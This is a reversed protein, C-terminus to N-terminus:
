NLEIRGNRLQGNCSSPNQPEPAPLHSKDAQGELSEIAAVPQSATRSLKVKPPQDFGHLRNSGSQSPNVQNSGSYNTLLKNYIMEM